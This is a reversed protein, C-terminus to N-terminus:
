AAMARLRQMRYDGHLNPHFTLLQDLLPSLDFVRHGQEDSICLSLLTLLEESHLQAIEKTWVEGTELSLETQASWVRFPVLFPTIASVAEAFHTPGVCAPIRAFDNASASSQLTPELPWVQDFFRHGIEKWREQVSPGAQTNTKEAFFISAFRWAAAARVDDNALSLASRLDAARLVYDRERCSWIWVIICMESLRRKSDPTISASYLHKLLAAQLKRWLKSPPVKGYRAFAEWLRDSAAGAQMMPSLVVENLWKEDVLLFYNMSVVMRNAWLELARGSLQKLKSFLVHPLNGKGDRIPHCRNLVFSLLHGLPENLAAM